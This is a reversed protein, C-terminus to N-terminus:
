MFYDFDHESRVRRRIRFIQAPSSAPDLLVYNRRGQWLYRSDGLLEHVQFVEEERIGFEELPVELWGDHAHHPDLNVAVLIINTMDETTKGYFLLHDNHVPYFRLRRNFALARNQQRIQNLRAIFPRLNGKQSWNRPKIEYKESFRYEESDPVAENELLEFGSYIGYSASLTAALVVRVMFASRGGFQLYEPLIDPTNAFFNPRFYEFVETEVLEELYSTLQEKTNRWTFYTYSQSFGAKALAYMVRPRTFAESLFVTDAYDARVEGILWEWFNFPKTHPNDVRFIRVGREAWFTIVSKLELWLSQWQECDFNLPYIDEYKKPPNEAFKISGDPRHRFWEPHERVYPHDPSCQFAIDLAVALGHQGAVQVMHEFDELTGLDPHVAKHGGAESGIAWPSGPDDEAAVLANNRGKRKTHGIPHIPPLYLVDFGLAAIEPLLKEVDRFTGSRSPDPTASRPFLEYWASCRATETEVCVTLVPDYVAERSRDPYRQMMANLDAATARDVLLEQAMDSRLAAAAATLWQRDASAAREAAAEIMAGGELLESALDQGAKFKKLLDSQWTSFHDVWARITYSYSGLNEVTFEGMWLDERFYTMPLESWNGHQDRCCLVAALRDHGDTFIYASVTVKEGVTRKIPFLGCDIRPKVDEIWVRSAKRAPLEHTSQASKM